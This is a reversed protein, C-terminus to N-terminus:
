ARGKEASPLTFFIVTAVCVAFAFAALAILYEM